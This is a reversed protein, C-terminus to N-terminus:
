PTGTVERVGKLSQNKSMYGHLDRNRLKEKPKGQGSGAM